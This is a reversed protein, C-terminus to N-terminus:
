GFLKHWEDFREVGDMGFRMLSQRASDYTHVHEPKSKSFFKDAYCILKEELTEPYYDREVVTSTAAFITERSLGTGTHRECIRAEAELGDNRLLEAGVFGHMLYHLDGHCHISPAHTLFVGIDHLLSGSLILQNNLRLEPHRKACSLALTAVQWSHTLLLNRLEQNNADTPYYKDIVALPSTM